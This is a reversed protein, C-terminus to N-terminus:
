LKGDIELLANMYVRIGDLLDSIRIAENSQHGGGLREGAIPQSSNPGYALADPIMHAYTVGGMTYPQLEKGLTRNCVDVLTRVIPQEPDIYRPDCNDLVECAFGAAAVTERVRERIAAGDVATGYRVNLYQNLVGDELRAMGGIHTTGGFVADSFDVGLERGHCDALVGGLFRLAELAGGTVLGRGALGHALRGIANVSGEPFGGHGAVGTTSVKVYPGVPIVSFADEGSFLRRVDEYGVHELLAFASDPVMNRVSGGRFDVLNGGEVPHTIRVELSGKEGICVPFASDAILTLAPTPAHQLFYQVDMMDAGTAKRGCGFVIQVTHKFRFGFDRICKLLYILLAAAGKNDLSGRGCLCGDIICPSFPDFSWCDNEPATDLHVMFCIAEDTEGPLWATGCYYEYNHTGFGMSACIGLAEDLVRACGEGFPHAAGAEYESISRIRMMQMAHALMNDKNFAIWAEMQQRFDM